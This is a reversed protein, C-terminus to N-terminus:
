RVATSHGIIFAIGVLAAIGLVMLTATTRSLVVADHDVIRPPGVVGSSKNSPPPPLSADPLPLPEPRAKKGPTAQRFGDPDLYREVDDAEFLPMDELRQSLNLKPKPALPEPLPPKPALAPRPVHMPQSPQVPSIPRQQPLHAPLHPNPVMVEHQESDDFTEMRESSRMQAASIMETRENTIDDAGPVTIPQGCRPCEILTGIKRRSISLKGRCGDCKFTVPM